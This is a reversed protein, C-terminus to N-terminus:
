RLTFTLVGDKAFEAFEPIDSVDIEIDDGNVEGVLKSNGLNLTISDGDIEYTGTTRAADIDSTDLEAALEEAFYQELESRSMGMMTAVEEIGMGTSAVLIADLNEIIFDMTSAKFEDGSLMLTAEDDEGLVLYMNMKLSGTFTVGGMEASLEEVMKDTLDIEAVYVDGDPLDIVPGDPIETVNVIITHSIVEEDNMDYVTFTYEGPILFDTDEYTEAGDYIGYSMTDVAEVTDSTYVVKGDIAVTYYVDYGLKELVSFDSISLLIDIESEDTVEDNAIVSAVCDALKLETFEPEFKEFAFVDKVVDEANTVVLDEDDNLELEVTVKVEKKADISDYIDLFEEVDVYVEDVAEPDVYTFTVDATAKDDDVEVSKKDLEYELTDAIALVIEEKDEAIDAFEFDDGTAKSVKKADRAVVADAFNEVKKTVDKESIEAKEKSDKSCSAASLVMSCSLALAMVKKMTKM